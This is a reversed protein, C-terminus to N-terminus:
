IMEYFDYGFFSEDINEYVKEVFEDIAGDAKLQEAFDEDATKMGIESQIWKKTYRRGDVELTETYGHGNTEVIYKMKVGGGRQVAGAFTAM